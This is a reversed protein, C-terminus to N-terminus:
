NKVCRVSIAYAKKYNYIFTNAYDYGITMNYAERSNYETSSFFQAYYGVGACLGLDYRRGAPLASFGVENTAGVNVDKWLLRDYDKLKGGAIEPGGISNIMTEFEKMSPLHWGAPCAKMAADWEYLKGYIQCRSPNDEYCYSGPGADYRLNEAMWWAEGIQIAQYTQGDRADTITQFHLDYTSFSWVPGETINGKTDRVRVRWFYKTGYDLKGPSFTGFMQSAIFQAPPNTKGFFCTFFMPDGDPDSSSWKMWPNITLTVAGEAPQPNFPAEPPLNSSSVLLPVKLTDTMGRPDKVVLTVKYDGSRAYKHDGKKRTAYQTDFIGDGEWDWIFLLTEANDDPDTTLSADMMFITEDNGTVPDISFQAVPPQNEKACSQWILFIVCASLCTILLFFRKM